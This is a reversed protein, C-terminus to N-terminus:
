IEIAVIKRILVFATGVMAFATCALLNGCLSSFLEGMYSPNIIFLIATLAFPMSGVLYGAGQQQATLVRIEGKIRIRERITHGIIELIQALNGGVEHQVLIATAMLDLDDNKIRRVMNNLAPELALGLGLERVVRGFEESIPPQMERSLLEMSQPLSYGSRLSNALLTVADPLQSAFAAQRRSQRLKVYWRPAFYGLISFPLAVYIVKFILWGLAFAALVAVVNLIVFEGPTLRLDARALEQALDTSRGRRALEKDIEETLRGRSRQESVPATSAGMMPRGAYRDLRSSIATSDGSVLRAIGFFFIFISVMCMLAVALAGVNM